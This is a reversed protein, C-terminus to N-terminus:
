GAAQLGLAGAAAAEGDVAGRGARARRAAWHGGAAAVFCAASGLALGARAGFHEAIFGLIPGGVPTSGFFVLAQLALVRGRMTPEARLQLISTSSTMYTISAIGTVFAVPMAVGVTPVAALAAMAVGFLVSGRIVHHLEVETRRAARLAGVFSGASLLSLLLTFDTTTGHLSRTAFLPFTVAFNFTLTGIVAMMLLSIRLEPVGRVYRLGERVQGKAREAVSALRLTTTDLMWLGILVAVYSVTDFALAWGYGFTTILFGALAPGVVRSGTMVASNLSVANQVHSEPVMEVVFARRAPNEFAAATGSALSAAFLAWLPPRDMFALIMLVASQTMALSQVILLLRRKDSRDAVVGAFAGLVLVPAFQCATLLGVAVGSDTLKLVLLALAVSRTWNGVQSIAQGTFFLRFNRIEFSRLTDRTALSIRRRM